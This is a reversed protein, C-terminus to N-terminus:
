HITPRVDLVVKGTPHDSELYALADGTRELPFIKDIHIKVIGEDVLKSLRELRASNVQTFQHVARVGFQKMLKEDPNELLSVIIGGRKLIPFSRRYTDGGVLDLVADVDKVADEFKESRFDIIQDAGLRKAYDIDHEGVTAAVRAGIHVAIQIAISGIGGGGGHILVSQGGSLKMHDELAQLASVGVLPLAGAEIHSIRKPKLAVADQDALAFEEFSGSGGRYAASQGYVEEGPKFNAVGPGIEKVVGSFDGGLTAPLPIQMMGSRIKWDVPNVGAAHVAVLIKGKSVAPVSLSIIVIGENGGFKTLQVAKM